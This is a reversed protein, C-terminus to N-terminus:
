DSVIIYMVMHKHGIRTYRICVSVYQILSEDVRIFVTVMNHSARCDQGYINRSRM